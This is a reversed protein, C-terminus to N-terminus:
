KYRIQLLRSRQRRQMPAMLVGQSEESWEELVSSPPRSVHPGQLTGLASPIAILANPHKYITTISKKLKQGGSVGVVAGVIFKLLKTVPETIM